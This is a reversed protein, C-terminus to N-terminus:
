WEIIVIGAKGSGGSVNPGGNSGAAGTGYFVAPRSAVGNTVYQTGPGPGFLSAGGFSTSNGYTGTVNIDGGSGSGPAGDASANTGTSAGGTASVTSITQTGSALSSTASVGGVTVALTRGPTLGTLYKIAGGGGGGAGTGGYTNSLGGANGGGGIVTAKVATVGAPITFTGSSTFVQGRGGIWASSQTTADSFTVGTGNLASSM